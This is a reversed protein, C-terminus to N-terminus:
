IRRAGGWRPAAGHLQRVGGLARRSGQFPGARRPCSPTGVPPFLTPRFAFASRAGAHAGGGRAPSACRAGPPSASVLQGPAALLPARRGPRRRPMGRAPSACFNHSVKYGWQSSSGPWAPAPSPQGAVAHEGRRLVGRPTTRRLAAAGPHALAGPQTLFLGPKSRWGSSAPPAAGRPSKPGERRGRHRRRLGAPSGGPRRRTTQIASAPAAGAAAPGGSGWIAARM